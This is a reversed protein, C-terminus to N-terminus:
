PSATRNHHRFAYRYTHVSAVEPCSRESNERIPNNGIYLTKVSDAQYCLSLGLFLHLLKLFHCFQSIKVRYKLWILKIGSNKCVSM